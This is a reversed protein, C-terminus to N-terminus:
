CDMIEYNGGWDSDESIGILTTPTIGENDSEVANRLPYTIKNDEFYKADIASVLNGM